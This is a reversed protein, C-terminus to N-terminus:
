QKLYFRATYTGKGLKENIVKYNEIIAVDGQLVKCKIFENRQSILKLELNSCFNSEPSPLSDTKPDYFFISIELRNNRLLSLHLEYPWNKFIAYSRDDMIQATDNSQGERLANELPQLDFTVEFNGSLVEINNKINQAAEQEKRYHENINFGPAIKKLFEYLKKAKKM